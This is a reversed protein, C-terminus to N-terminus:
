GSIWVGVRGGRVRQAMAAQARKAARKAARHANYARKFARRTAKRERQLAARVLAHEGRQAQALLAAVAAQDAEAEPALTSM